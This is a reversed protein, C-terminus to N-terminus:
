GREEMDEIKGTLINIQNSRYKIQEALNKVKEPDTSKSKSEELALLMLMLKSKEELNREYKAIRWGDLALGIHYIPNLRVPIFGVGFPDMKGGSTARITDWETPEFIHGDLEELKKLFSKVPMTLIEVVKIFSETNDTDTVWAITAKDVPGSIKSATSSDFEEHVIALVFRRAYDNVFNLAELYAIINLKKYDLVDKVIDRAFENELMKIVDEENEEIHKLAKGISVYANKSYDIKSKKLKREMETAAKGKFKVDDVNADYMPLVIQQLEDYSHTVDIIINRKTLNPLLSQFFEGLGTTVKEVNM